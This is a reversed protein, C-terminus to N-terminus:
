ASVLTRRSVTSVDDALGRERPLDGRLEVDGGDCDDLRASRLAREDRLTRPVGDGRFVSSTVGPCAVRWLM